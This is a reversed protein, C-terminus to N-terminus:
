GSKEREKAEDVVLVVRVQHRNTWRGDTANRRNQKPIKDEIRQRM